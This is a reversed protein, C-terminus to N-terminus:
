GNKGMVYKGYYAFADLSDQTIDKVIQKNLWTINPPCKILQLNNLKPESKTQLVFERLFHQQNNLM